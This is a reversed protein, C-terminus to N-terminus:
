VRKLLIRQHTNNNYLGSSQGRSFDYSVGFAFINGTDDFKCKTLSCSIKTKNFVVSRRQYLDFIQYTGNSGVIGIHRNKKNVALGNVPFRFPPNKKPMGECFVRSHFIRKKNKTNEMKQNFGIVAIRGGISGAVVYDPCIAINKSPQDLSDYDDPNKKLLYKSKMPKSLNRPDYMLLHQNRWGCLAAIISPKPCVDVCYVREPCNIVKSKKSRVDWIKCRTNWSSTLVTTQNIQKISTIATGKTKPNEMHKGFNQKAKKQINIMDLNGMVDGTFITGNMLLCSLVPSRLTDKYVSKDRFGKRSVDIQWVYVCKDWSSCAIFQKFWVIDTITDTPGKLEHLREPNLKHPHYQFQKQINKFNPNGFNQGQNMNRGLNSGGQNNFNWTGNQNQNKYGSQSGPGPFSWSM